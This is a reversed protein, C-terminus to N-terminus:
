PEGILQFIQKVEAPTLISKCRPLTFVQSHRKLWKNLTKLDVKYKAALETRSMARIPEAGNKITEM